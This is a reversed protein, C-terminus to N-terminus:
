WPYVMVGLMVLLLVALIISFMRLKNKEASIDRKEQIGAIGLRLSKGMIGGIALMAVFIVVVVIMWSVAYEGKSMIYGGTILQIILGYQAIRNFTRVAAISGEQAPAALKMLTSVVFPLLLYYGVSVAGLIHVFYFFSGM